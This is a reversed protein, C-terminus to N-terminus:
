FKFDKHKKKTSTTGSVSSTGTDETKRKKTQADKASIHEKVMDSLDEGRGTIGIPGRNIGAPGQKKAENYKQRLLASEGIGGTDQALLEEPQISVEISESPTDGFRRQRKRPATTASVLM